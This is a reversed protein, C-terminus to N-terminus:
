FPLDDDSIFSARRARQFYINTDAGNSKVVIEVQKGSLRPLHEDLDSFKGLELGLTELEEKVYGLTKDTIARNKFLVKGSHESTLVRVRYKLLPNGSSKASGLEASEIEAAYTGDPVLLSGADVKRYADDFHTLDVASKVLAM